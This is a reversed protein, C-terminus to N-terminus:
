MEALWKLYSVSEPASWDPAGEARAIENGDKDILISMPLGYGGFARLLAANADVNAPLTGAGHSKLFDRAGAQSDRSVDVTVVAFHGGPLAKQLSALAPLEKVCPGCWPAWLNVLVLRGKFEALSHLKGDEGSFVAVPAPRAPSRKLLSLTAPPAHVTVASMWYLVALLLLLAAGAAVAIVTLRPRTVPM